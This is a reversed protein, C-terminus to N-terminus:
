VGQRDDKMQEYIEYVLSTVRSRWGVDDANLRIEEEFDEIDHPQIKYPVTESENDVLTHRFEHRVVKEKDLDETHEWMVKDLYVIYDFGELDESENKTLHRLLDNTKQIRALVVKGESMRKKTDFIVKVKANVLEPFYQRKVNDVFMMTSQDVDEFRTGM